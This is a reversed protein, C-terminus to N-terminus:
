YPFKSESLKKKQGSSDTAQYKSCEYFGREMLFFTVCNKLLKSEAAAVLDLRCKYLM